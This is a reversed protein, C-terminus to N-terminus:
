QRRYYGWQYADYRKVAYWVAEGRQSGLHSGLSELATRGRAARKGAAILTHHKLAARVATALVANLAGRLLAMHAGKTFVPLRVIDLLPLPIPFRELHGSM